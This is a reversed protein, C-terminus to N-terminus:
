PKLELRFLGAGTAAYVQTRIGRPLVSLALVRNDGEPDGRGEIRREDRERRVDLALASRGEDLDHRVVVGRDAGDFFLAGYVAVRGQEEVLAVPGASPLQGLRSWRAGADRSVFPGEAESERVVVITEGLVAVHHEAEGLAAGALGPVERVTWAHGGDTSIAVRAGGVRPVCLAVVAGEAAGLAAVPAPLLPSSWSDGFDDSRYLVGARTRGWLRAGSGSPEGTVFFAVSLREPDGHLWGNVPAFTRGGDTSRFAGGLRTGVVMRTPTTPDIVISTIDHGGLGDSDLAVLETGARAYLQEGGAFLSDGALAVAALADDAPGYHAIAIQAPPMAEPLAAGSLRAEEEYSLEVGEIEAEEALDLDDALEDGEAGVAIPPLDVDDEDGRVSFDEDVGEEGADPALMSPEDPEDILEEDWGEIGPAETDEVWGYEEGEEARLGDDAVLEGAAETGETWREDEDDGRDTQEGLLEAIDYVEAGATSDDLGIDEDEGGTDVEMAVDAADDVGVPEDEDLSGGLPPLEDLADDDAAHTM